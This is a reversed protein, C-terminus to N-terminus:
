ASGSSGLGSHLAFRDKSGGQSQARSLRKGKWKASLAVDEQALVVGQMPIQHKPLQVIVSSFVEM